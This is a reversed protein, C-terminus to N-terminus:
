KGCEEMFLKNLTPFLEDIKRYRVEPNHTYELGTRLKYKLSCLKIKGGHISIFNIFEDEGFFLILEVIIVGHYYSFAGGPSFELLSIIAKSDKILAKELMEDYSDFGRINIELDLLSQQVFISDVYTGNGGCSLLVIAMAVVIRRM